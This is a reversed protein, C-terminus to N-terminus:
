SLTGFVRHFSIAVIKNIGVHMITHYPNNRVMFRCAVYCSHINLMHLISIICMNMMYAESILSDITLSIHIFLSHITLYIRQQKRNPLNCYGIHYM